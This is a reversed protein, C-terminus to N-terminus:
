KVQVLSSSLLAFWSTDSLWKEKRAERGDYEAAVCFRKLGSHIDGLINGERGGMPGKDRSQSDRVHCVWSLMVMRGGRVDRFGRECFEESKFSSGMVEAKLEGCVGGCGRSNVELNGAM